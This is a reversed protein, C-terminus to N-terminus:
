LFLEAMEGLHLSELYDNVSQESQTFALGLMINSAELKQISMVTTSLAGSSQEPNFRIAVSLIKDKFEQLEFSPDLHNFNVQCGGNSINVVVADFTQEDVECQASLACPYRADRRLKQCQIEKPFSSLLLKCGTYNVATVDSRFAFVTGEAILRMVLPRDTFFLNDYVVTVSEKKLQKPTPLPTILTRTGDVGILRTLYKLTNDQSSIQVLAGITLKALMAAPNISHTDDKKSVNAPATPTPDQAPQASDMNPM